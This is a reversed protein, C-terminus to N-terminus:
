LNVLEVPDLFVGHKAIRPPTRERARQHLAPVPEVDWPTALVRSPDSVWVPVPLRVAGLLHDV